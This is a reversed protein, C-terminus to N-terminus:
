STLKISNQIISSMGGNAMYEVCFNATRNDLLRVTQGYKDFYEKTWKPVVCDHGCKECPYYISEGKAVEICGLCDGGCNLSLYDASNDLYRGCISCNDSM